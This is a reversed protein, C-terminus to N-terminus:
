LHRVEQDCGLGRPRTVDRDLRAARRRGTLAVDDHGKYPVRREQDLRCGRIHQDIRHVSLARARERKRPGASHPRRTHMELVQRRDRQHQQTVIVVVVAVEGSQFQELVPEMGLRYGRLTVAPQETRGSEPLNLLQVPPLGRADCRQRYRDSGGLVEGGTSREVSVACEPASEKYLYLSASNEMGSVGAVAGVEALDALPEARDIQRENGDPGILWAPEHLINVQIRRFRRLRM